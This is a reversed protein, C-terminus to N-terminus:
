ARPYVTFGVSGDAAAVRDYSGYEPNGNEIERQITKEATTVAYNHKLEGGWTDESEGNANEVQECTGLGTAHLLGNGQNYWDTMMLYEGDAVPNPVIGIEYAAKTGADPKYRIAYEADKGIYTSVTKNYQAVLPGSGCTLKAQDKLSLPNAVLDGLHKPLTVGANAALTRVDLGAETALQFMRLQHIGPMPYDGALKGHDTVWTRYTNQKVMELQPCGSKVAQELAELDTVCFGSDVHSM